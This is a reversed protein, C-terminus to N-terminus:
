SYSVLCLMLSVVGGAAFVVALMLANEKASRRFIAYGWLIAAAVFYVVALINLARIM